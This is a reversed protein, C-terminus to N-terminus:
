LVIAYCAVAANCHICACNYIVRCLTWLSVKMRTVTAGTAESIQAAVPTRVHAEWSEKLERHLDKELPGARGSLKLPYAAPAPAPPPPAPEDADSRAWKGRGRTKIGEAISATTASQGTQTAPQVLLASLQQEWQRVAEPVVIFQVPAEIPKYQKLRQWAPKDPSALPAGLVRRQEGDSLRLRPNTHTAAHLEYGTCADLDPQLLAPERLYLHNLQTSSLENEYALLHLGASACPLHLACPRHHACHAHTHTHKCLTNTHWLHTPQLPLILVGLLGRQM